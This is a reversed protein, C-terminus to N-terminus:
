ISSVKVPKLIILAKLASPLTFFCNKPNTSSIKLILFLINFLRSKAEGIESVKPTIIKHPTNHNPPCNTKLPSINFPPEKM